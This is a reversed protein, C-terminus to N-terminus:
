LETIKAISNSGINNSSSNIMIVSVIIIIGAFIIRSNLVEDAFLNGLLIAIIPNIYAYTSVLSIPANRLLWTYTTFGILSGFIILYVLSFYSRTTILNINLQSFEGSITGLILLGVGGTLFEMGTSLLPSDPMTANRSYLSGASWFIAAFLIAVIGIPQIRESAGAFQTPGILLILGIFGFIAFLITKKNQNRGENTFFNLIIIWLPVSGIVMAAIGSPVHQEAWTVAGNGGLLLLLGIISTSKWEQLTPVKDGSFRRWAYLLIGPVIFRTAAMLFPPISEVAFRIALYTSGWILYITILAVWTRYKM